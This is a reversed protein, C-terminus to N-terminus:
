KFLSEQGTQLGELTNGTEEATLRERALNAYEPNKEYGIFRRGLRIAAVGTSGSGCFPDLILDGPNTFKEVLEIMLALPKETPHQFTRIGPNKLHTFVGATGGGNWSSRGARHSCVISEYGMGPRDGSLQPMPDPKLWICTRRYVHALSCADCHCGCDTKGRVPDCKDSMCHPGTTIANEWASVAEVQCFIASWGSACKMRRGVEMREEESIQAFNLQERIELGAGTMRRMNKSHCEAEYPPDCLVHNVEPWQEAFCSGERIEWRNM